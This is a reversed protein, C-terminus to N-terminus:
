LYIINTTKIPVNLKSKSKKDYAEYNSNHVAIGEVDEIQIIISNRDIFPGNYLTIKRKEQNYEITQM